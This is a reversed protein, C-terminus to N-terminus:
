ADTWHIIAATGEKEEERERMRASKLEICTCTDSITKRIMSVIIYKKKYAGKSSGSCSIAYSKKWSLVWGKLGSYNESCTFQGFLINTFISSKLSGSSEQFFTKLVLGINRPEFTFLFPVKLWRRKTLFKWQQIGIEMPLKIALVVAPLVNLRCSWM